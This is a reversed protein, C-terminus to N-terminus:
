LFLVACDEYDEILHDVTFEAGEADYYVAYVAGPHGDKGKILKKVQGIFYTTM